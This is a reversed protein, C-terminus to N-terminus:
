SPRPPVSREFSPISEDIRTLSLKESIFVQLRPTEDFEDDLLGVRIRIRDPDYVYRKYLPSGCRGCFVRLQGPSPEFERLLEKGSTLRFSGKAVVANTACEGGSAKRCQVCYCRAMTELPGRCQYTVGGCLCSGSLRKGSTSLPSDDNNM